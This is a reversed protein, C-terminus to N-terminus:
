AKAQAWEVGNTTLWYKALMNAKEWAPQGAAIEPEREGGANTGVLDAELSLQQVVVSQNKLLLWTM